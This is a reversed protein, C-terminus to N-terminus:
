LWGSGSSAASMYSKRFFISLSQCPFVTASRKLYERWLVIENRERTVYANVCFMSM